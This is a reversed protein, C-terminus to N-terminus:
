PEVPRRRSRGLSRRSLLLGSLAIAAALLFSVLNDATPRIVLLAAGLVAAAGCLLACLAGLRALYPADPGM